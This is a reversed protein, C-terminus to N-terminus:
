TVSFRRLQGSSSLVTYYGTASSPFNNMIDTCSTSPNLIAALLQHIENSQKMLVNTTNASTQQFETRLMGLNQNWDHAQTQLIEKVSENLSHLKRETKVNLLSIEKIYLQYLSENLGQLENRLQQYNRYVTTNIDNFNQQSCNQHHYNLMPILSMNGTCCNGYSNLAMKLAVIEIFAFVLAITAVIVLIAAILSLALALAVKLRSINFVNTVTTHVPFVHHEEETTLIASETQNENNEELSRKQKREPIQPLDLEAYQTSAQRSKDRVKKKSLDVMAYIDSVVQQASM